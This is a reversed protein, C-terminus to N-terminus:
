IRGVEVLYGGEPARLIEKVLVPPPNDFGPGGLISPGRGGVMIPGFYITFLDFLGENYFNWITESGGEVLLSRVDRKVLQSLVEQLDLRQENGDILVIELDLGESSVTNKILDSWDPDCDSSTVLLTRGPTRFARASPPVRGAGDLIIKTLPPADRVFDSKVTLKPDDTMVTGAGVLISGIEARLIHVREMDWRGSIRLRSGDPGAIKGDLSAACNIHVHPRDM